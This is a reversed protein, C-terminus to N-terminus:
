GPARRGAGTVATGGTRARSDRVIGPTTTSRGVSPPRLTPGGSVSCRVVPTAGLLPTGRHARLRVGLPGPRAHVAPQRLRQDTRPAEEGPRLDGRVQTGQVALAAALGVLEVPVPPGVVLHHAGGVTHVAGAEAGPLHVDLVADDGPLRLLGVVGGDAGVPGLVFRAAARAAGGEGPVRVRR